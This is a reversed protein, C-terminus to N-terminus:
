YGEPLECQEPRATPDPERTLTLSAGSNGRYILTDADLLRIAGSDMVLMMNPYPEGEPPAPQPDVVHWYLGGLPGVLGDLGCQVILSAHYGHDILLPCEVAPYHEDMPDAYQCMETPMSQDMAAEAWLVEFDDSPEGPGRMILIRHPDVGDLAYAMPETVVTNARTIAAFPTLRLSTEDLWEGVGASYRVGGVEVTTACSTATVVPREFPSLENDGEISSVPRMACPDPEAFAPIPLMDCATLAVAVLAGWTVARLGRGVTERLVGLM